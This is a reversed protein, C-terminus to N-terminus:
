VPTANAYSPRIKATDAHNTYLTVENLSTVQVTNCTKANNEHWKLMSITHELTITKRCKESQGSIIAGEIRKQDKGTM